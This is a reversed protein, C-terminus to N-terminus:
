RTEQTGRIVVGRIAGYGREVILATAQAADSTTWALLQFEVCGSVEAVYTATRVVSLHHVAPTVNTAERDSMDFGDSAVLQTGLMATAGTDDTVELEATLIVVDGAHLGNVRLRYVPLVTYAPYNNPLCPTTESGAATRFSGQSADVVTEVASAACAVAARPATTVPAPAGTAADRGCGTAVVMLVALLAALIVVHTLYAKMSGGEVGAAEHVGGVVSFTGILIWQVM